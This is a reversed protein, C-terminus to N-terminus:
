LDDKSNLPVSFFFMSIVSVVVCYCELKSRIITVIAIIGMSWIFYCRNKNLESRWVGGRAITRMYAYSMVTGCMRLIDSKERSEKWCFSIYASNNSSFRNFFSYLVTRISYLVDNVNWLYCLSDDTKEEINSELWYLIHACVCVCVCKNSQLKTYQNERIKINVEDNLRNKIWESVTDCSYM